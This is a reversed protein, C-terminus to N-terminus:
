QVDWLIFPKSSIVCLYSVSIGICSCVCCKDHHKDCVMIDVDEEEEKEGGRKM